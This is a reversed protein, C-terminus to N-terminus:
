EHNSRMVATVVYAADPGPSTLRVVYDQGIKIRGASEFAASLRSDLVLHYINSTAERTRLDRYRRTTPSFLFYTWEEVVTIAVPATGIKLIRKSKRRKKM